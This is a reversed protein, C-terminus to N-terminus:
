SKPSSCLISLISFYATSEFNYSVSTSFSIPCGSYYFCSKIIIGFLLIVFAFFFFFFRCIWFLFSGSSNAYGMAKYFNEKTLVVWLLAFINPVVIYDLDFINPSDVKDFKPFCYWTCFDRIPSPVRDASLLSNEKFM